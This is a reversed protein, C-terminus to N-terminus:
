LNMVLFPGAMCTEKKGNKTARVKYRRNGSGEPIHGSEVQVDLRGDSPPDVVTVGGDNTMTYTHDAGSDPTSVGKKVVFEVEEANTFDYPSRTGDLNLVWVRLRLLPDDGEAVSIAVESKITM